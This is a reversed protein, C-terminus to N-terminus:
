LLLNKYRNMVEQAPIYQKAAVQKDGEKLQQKKEEPTFQCPFIKQQNEKLNKM